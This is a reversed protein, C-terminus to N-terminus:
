KLAMMETNEYCRRADKGLGAPQMQKEVLGSWCADRIGKRSRTTQVLDQATGVM